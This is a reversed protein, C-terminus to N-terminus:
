EREAIINGIQALYQKPPYKYFDKFARTFNETTSYGTLNAVQSISHGALLLERSKQMRFTNIYEHPPIGM